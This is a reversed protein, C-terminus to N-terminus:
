MYSYASCSFYTHRPPHSTAPVTHLWASVHQLHSGGAVYDPLVKQLQSHVICSYIHRNVLTSGLKLFSQSATSCHDKIHITYIVINIIHKSISVQNWDTLLRCKNGVALWPYLGCSLLTSNIASNCGTYTLGCGSGVFLAM